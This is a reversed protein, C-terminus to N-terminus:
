KSLKIKKNDIEWHHNKCLFVLNLPDNVIKLKTDAHFDSIPKKHCLDTHKDYGCLYCKKDINYYKAIRHAHNRVNQYKHRAYTSKFDQIKMEGFDTTKQLSFCSKCMKNKATTRKGCKKCLLTPKRKPFKKGNYTGACSQSCFSNNIKKLESPTRKIAKKCQKCKKNITKKRSEHGCKRSCYKCVVGHKQGTGNLVRKIDNKPKFFTKGCKECELPLKDKSKASNFQQKDYLIIM